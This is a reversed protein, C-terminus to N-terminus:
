LELICEIEKASDSLKTQNLEINFGQSLVQEVAKRVNNPGSLINIASIIDIAEYRYGDLQEVSNAAEGLPNWAEIVKAVQVIQEERM